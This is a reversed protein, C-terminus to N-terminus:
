GRNGSDAVQSPSEAPTSFRDPFTSIDIVAFGADVRGNRHHNARLIAVKQSVSNEEVEEGPASGWIIRGGVRDTALEVHALKSDLRGGYNHVGVALIQDDFPEGELVELVELGANLDASEWRAGYAPPVGDVGQVIKLDCDSPVARIESLRVRDEDIAIFSHQTQILAVPQRYRCHVEVLGTPGKTVKVVQKVWVESALADAINRCLDPDIWALELAPAIRRIIVQRLQDPVDVLTVQPAVQFREAQHVNKDLEYLGCTIGVALVVVIFFVLAAKGVWGIPVPKAAVPRSKPQKKAKQKKPKKTPM